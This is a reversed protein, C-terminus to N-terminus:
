SIRAIAFFFCKAKLFLNKQVSVNTLFYFFTEEYFTHVVLTFVLVGSFNGNLKQRSSHLESETDSHLRMSLLRLM